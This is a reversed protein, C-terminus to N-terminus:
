SMDEAVYILPVRIDFTTGEGEISAAKIQGHHLRVIDRTISLGLGTGEIEKSHSKDARYFREFIEGLSEEPIGIGSDEVHIFCYQHDSNVSVRVYGGDKNYKIGNEILNILAQSFKVEDLDVTVPRFTELVLNIDRLEALPQLQKMIREAIENVNVSNISLHNQAQELRVISLLDNIIQTERDIEQTIDKMFERYFEVPTDESAVLSDALIKMSTLPTKLEHSVNSVFEARAADMEKMREVFVNFSETMKDIETYGNVSSIHEGAELSDLQANIHSLPRSLLYSLFASLVFFAIGVILLVLFVLNQYYEVDQEIADTNRLIAMVGLIEDEDSKSKETIPMVVYILHNSRDYESVTEGNLARIADAWVFTRGDYINYTDQVIELSRNAVLVRSSYLNELEGTRVYDSSKDSSLLGGSAIQMNLLQAQSTINSIVNDIQRDEYSELLTQSIIWTPLFGSIFILIFILLRFSRFFQLVRELRTNM